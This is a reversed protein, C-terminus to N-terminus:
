GDDCWNESRLAPNLVEARAGGSGIGGDKFAMGCFM